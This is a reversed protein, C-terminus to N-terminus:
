VLVVMAVVLQQAMQVLQVPEVVEAAAQIQLRHLRVRV